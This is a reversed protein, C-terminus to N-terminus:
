KGLSFFAMVKNKVLFQLKLKKKWKNAFKTKTVERGWSPGCPFVFPVNTIRVKLFLFFPQFLIKKEFFDNKQFFVLDLAKSFQWFWGFDAKKSRVVVPLGARFFPPYM